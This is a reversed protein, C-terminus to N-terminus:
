AYTRDNGYIHFLPAVPILIARHPLCLVDEGLDVLLVELLRQFILEACCEGADDILKALSLLCFPGKQRRPIGTWRAGANRQPPM